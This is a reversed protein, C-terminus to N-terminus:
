LTQRTPDDGKEGDGARLTTNLFTILDPLKEKPLNHLDLGEHKLQELFALTSVLEQEEPTAPPQEENSKEQEAHPPPAPPTEAKTNTAIGAINLVTNAARRAVEPKESTKMLEILRNFAHPIYRLALIKLQLTALQTKLKLLENTRPDHITQHLDERSCNLEKLLSDFHALSNELHNLLQQPQIRLDPDTTLKLATYM